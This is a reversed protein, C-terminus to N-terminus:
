QLSDRKLNVAPLMMQEKEHAAILAKHLIRSENKSQGQTENLNRSLVKWLTSPPIIKNRIIKLNLTYLRDHNGQCKVIVQVVMGLRNVVHRHDTRARVSLLLELHYTEFLYAYIHVFCDADSREELCTSWSILCPGKVQFNKLLEYYSQWDLFKGNLLFQLNM